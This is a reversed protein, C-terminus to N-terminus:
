GYGSCFALRSEINICTERKLSDRTPFYRHDRWFSVPPSVCQLLCGFLVSCCFVPTMARRPHPRSNDQERSSCLSAGGPAHIPPLLLWHRCIYAPFVTFLWRFPQHQACVKNPVAPVRAPDAAIWAESAERKMDAQLTM